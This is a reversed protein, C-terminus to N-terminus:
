IGIRLVKRVHREERGDVLGPEEPPFHKLQDTLEDLRTDDDEDHVPRQKLRDEHDGKCHDDDHQDIFELRVDALVGVTESVDSLPLDQNDGEEGQQVSDVKGLDVAVDDVVLLCHQVDGDHDSTEESGSEREKLTASREEPEKPEEGV